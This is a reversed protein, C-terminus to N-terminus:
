GINIKYTPKRAVILSSPGHAPSIDEATVKFGTSRLLDMLEFAKYQRGETWKYLTVSFATAIERRRGAHGILVEHLIVRGGPPLAAFANKLLRKIKEADWDHLVHSFFVTDFEEKPWDSSSFMDGRIARVQSVVGHFRIWQKTIDVMPFLELVGMKLRSNQKALELAYTGGGGAVDLIRRSGAFAPHQGIAVAAAAGQSHMHKAFIQALAPSMVHEMMADDNEQIPNKKEKEIAELLSKPTSPNQTMLNFLGGWHYPHSDDVLLYTKGVESLAWKGQRQHVMGYLHLFEVMEAVYRFPIALTEAATKLDVRREALLGTLGLDVATIVVPLAFRDRSLERLLQDKANKGKARHFRLDQSADRSVASSYIEPTIPKAIMQTVRTRWSRDVSRKLLCSRAVDSLSFVGTQLDLCLLGLSELQWLLVKSARPTLGLEQRIVSETAPSRDLWEFVNLELAAVISPLTESAMWFRWAETSDPPIVAKPRYVISQLRQFLGTM